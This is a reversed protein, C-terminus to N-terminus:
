CIEYKKLYIYIFLINIEKLNISQMILNNFWDYESNYIGIDHLIILQLNDEIESYNIFTM